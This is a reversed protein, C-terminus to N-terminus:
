VFDACNKRPASNGKIFMHILSSIHTPAFLRPRCRGSVFLTEKEGHLLCCIPVSGSPVGACDPRDLFIQLAAIQILIRCGAELWDTDSAVSFLLLREPVTIKAAISEATPTKAVQEL